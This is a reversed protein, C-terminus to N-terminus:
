VIYGRYCEILLHQNWVTEFIQLTMGRPPNQLVLIHKERVIYRSAGRVGRPFDQSILIRGM